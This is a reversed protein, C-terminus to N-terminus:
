GRPNSPDVRSVAEATAENSNLVPVAIPLASASVAINNQIEKLGIAAEIKDAVAVPTIGFHALAEPAHDVVYQAGVALNAPLKPHLFQASKIQEATAQQIKGLGNNVASTLLDAMEKNKIKAQIIIPIVVGLIGFIGAIVTAAIGTLDVTAVEAAHATSCIM